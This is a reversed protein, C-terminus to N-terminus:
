AAPLAACHLEVTQTFLQGLTNDPDADAPLSMAYSMHEPTPNPEALKLQCQKALGPSLTIDRHSLWSMDVFYSPDFILVRLSDRTVPQPKALPLEFTLVMKAKDREFKAQEAVQYKILQEGEYFYTFYHESMMNEIVSTALNQFTDLEKEPSLDEGDLMYMSTIADFSWEMSLGTIMGNEGEIHTKMEIWSHPHASLNPAFFWLALWLPIRKISLFVTSFLSVCRSPLPSLVDILFAFLKM